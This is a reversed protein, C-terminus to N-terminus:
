EQISGQETDLAQEIITRGEAALRHDRGGATIGITLGNKQVIGPFYFDCEQRCDAANVPIEQERCLRVIRQNLERCDTAALVLDMGKLDSEEFPREKLCIRSGLERVSLSIQPAVATISWNFRSM